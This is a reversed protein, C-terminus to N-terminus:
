QYRLADVPQMGAAKSAPYLTSFFTIVVAAMIIAILDYPQVDVPVRDISYIQEPVKVYNGLIYCCGLGGALGWFIGLLGVHMGQKIFIRKISGTSAGLAKLVGIENIKSTVTVVLTSVVNFSAVLVMMTLILFLGWKELFLAEFLNRNIDIWSKVVYAFGITDYVAQQVVPAQDPNNLKLGIGSAMDDDMQFIKQAQALDTLVLNMDYDVMGTRFVGAVTLQYRWGEGAIGSGPAILTISDGVRVGFYRALEKGIIVNGPSLDNLSGELLYQSVNTVGHERRPDIGRLILGVAQQATELFVNGQIYPSAGVVGEIQRVDNIVANFDRIRNEKEIMIHPTTGIIKERLNNGFGTMVSTVIILSAVGIAIGVISIINLFSLFKEKKAHSYKQSIWSEFGM